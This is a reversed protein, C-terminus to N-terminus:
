SHSIARSFGGIDAVEEGFPFACIGEYAGNSLFGHGFVGLFPNLPQRCFDAIQTHLAGYFFLAPIM